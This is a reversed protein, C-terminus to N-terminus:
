FKYIQLKLYINHYKGNKSVNARLSIHQTKNKNSSRRLIRQKKNKNWLSALKQM